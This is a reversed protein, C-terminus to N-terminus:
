VTMFVIDKIRNKNINANDLILKFRETMVRENNEEDLGLSFDFTNNRGGYNEIVNVIGLLYEKKEKNNLLINLKRDTYFELINFVESTVLM